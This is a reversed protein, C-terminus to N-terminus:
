FSAGIQRDGDLDECGPVIELDPDGILSSLSVDRLHLGRVEFGLELSKLLWAAPPQEEDLVHDVVHGDLAVAGMVGHLKHKMQFSCRIAFVSASAFTLVRSPVATMSSLPSM